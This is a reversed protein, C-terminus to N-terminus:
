VVSKRDIYNKFNSSFMNDVFASLNSEKNATDRQLELSFYINGYSNDSPKSVNYIPFSSIIRTSPILYLLKEDGDFPITYIINYGDVYYFKKDYIISSNYFPNYQEIKIEKIDKSKNDLFLEILNIKYKEYYFDTLEDLESNCIQENTLAQIENTLSNIKNNFYSSTDYKEFLNIM